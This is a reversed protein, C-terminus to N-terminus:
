VRGWSDQEQRATLSLPFEELCRLLESLARSSQVWFAGLELKGQKRQLVDKLFLFLGKTEAAKTRITRSRTTGIMAVTLCQMESIDRGVNESKWRAYFSFLESELLSVTLHARESQTKGAGVSYADAWIIEWIANACWSKLTGLYLSHLVDVLFSEISVGISPAFLPNRRMTITEQGRRWFVVEVPFVELSGFTGTDPLTPSPELRDGAVLGCEEIDEVLVLGRMGDKRFDPSLRTSVRKHLEADLVVVLEAQDCAAEYDYAIIAQWSFSGPNLFDNQRLESQPIRCMPCPHNTSSWSPVGFTHAYEAWDGKIAFLCGVINLPSGARAVREADQGDSDWPRGDPRDDPFAGLALSMLSWQLFRFVQWLTCWGKCSCRCLRSKRVACVLHRRFSIIDFIWFGLVSEKKNIAVGDTYLVLPLATNSSAKAVPHEFYMPPLSRHKVADALEEKLEPRESLMTHIAEHPPVVATPLLARDVARRDHGPLHLIMHDKELTNMGLVQRVHPAFKGSQSSPSKALKTILSGGAGAKSAWWFIVCLDRASIIGRKWREILYDAFGDQGDQLTMGEPVDAEAANFEDIDAEGFGAKLLEWSNDEWPSDWSRSGSSAM